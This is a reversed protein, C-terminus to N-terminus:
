VSWFLAGSRMVSPQSGGHPQQSKFEPGESSCDTSKVASVDFLRKAPESLVVAHVARIGSRILLIAVSRGIVRDIVVYDKFYDNSVIVKSMIPEIGHLCSSYVEEDKLAVFTYGNEILLRKGKSVLNM